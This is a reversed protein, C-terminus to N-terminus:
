RAISMLNNFNAIYIMGYLYGDHIYINVLVFMIVLQISSKM